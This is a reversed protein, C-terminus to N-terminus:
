KLSKFYLVLSDIQKEDLTYPPMMGVPFDKVSKATPQTISEKLYSEDATTSSGDTFSRKAGVIGKFSPGHGKSGDTTHCAICGMTEYLKRGAGASATTIKIEKKKYGAYSEGANPRILVNLTGKASPLIEVPTKPDVYGLQDSSKSSAYHLVITQPDKGPSVSVSISRGDVDFFFKPHGKIRKEGTYRFDTPLPKGNIQLPHKGVAKYFVQGIFHPVYGNRVRGGSQKAGWYNEMDLFGNAWGYFLRCETTDWAYSLGPGANVSIAAPIGSIPQYRGKVSLLGSGPSYHPSEAGVAHHSTVNSDLNLNQIFTRLVLPQEATGMPQNDYTIYDTASKTGARASGSVMSLALGCLLTQIRMTKELFDFINMM